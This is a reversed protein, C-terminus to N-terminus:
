LVDHEEDAYEHSYLDVADGCARSVLGWSWHLVFFDAVLEEVGYHSYLDVADSVHSLLGWRWSPVYLNSWLGVREEDGHDHSYM